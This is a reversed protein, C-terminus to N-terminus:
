QDPCLRISMHRILKHEPISSKDISETRHKHKLNLQAERLVRQGFRILAIHVEDLDESLLRIKLVADALEATGNDLYWDETNMEEFIM